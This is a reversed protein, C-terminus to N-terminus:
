VEVRVRRRNVPEQGEEPLKVNEPGGAGRIVRDLVHEPMEKYVNDYSTIPRYVLRTSGAEAIAQYKTTIAGDEDVLTEEREDAEEESDEEFLDVSGDPFEAFVLYAPVPKPPEDYYDKGGSLMWIVDRLARQKKFAWDRINPYLDTRELERDYEEKMRELVQVVFDATGIDLTVMDSHLAEDNALQEHLAILEDSLRDQQRAYSAQLNPNGKAEQWAKNMAKFRLERERILDGITSM